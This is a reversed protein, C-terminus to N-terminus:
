LVKLMLIEMSKEFPTGDLCLSGKDIYGLKRYFHQAQEDAQTSTMVMEFGLERMEQEWFLVSERGVGEGRQAEDIYILTLFPVSDWFLNYRMVGVPHNEKFIVYARNERVKLLLENESIHKDLMRWFVLDAETAYRLAFVEESKRMDEISEPLNERVEQISEARELLKMTATHPVAFIEDWFYEDYEPRIPFALIPDKLSFEAKIGNTNGRADVKIWRNELYIANFCHICYGESDDDLLTLHQYCFGVPIGVSRLLAALLNAKAHCIGTKYKLVDSAKATIVAANCDFSHPIEDRVFHYAIKAKDVDNRVGEFLATMCKQINYSSYDIYSTKELYEKM